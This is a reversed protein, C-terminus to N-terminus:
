ISPVTVEEWEVFHLEAFKEKEKKDLPPCAICLLDEARSLAVYLIRTDDYKESEIEPTFLGKLDQIEDVYLLVSEFETGKSKHITRIETSKDEQLIINNILEQITVQESSTKFRGKIIKKIKFGKLKIFDLLSEYFVYLTLNLSQKIEKVLFELLDVALSRKTLSDMVQNDQFPSKLINNKDTRLSHIIEKVALEYRGDVVLKYSTLLAKLFRERSDDADNLSTWADSIDTNLLKKVLKNNRALVCYDNNLELEKRLMQFNMLTDSADGFCEIYYIPNNSEQRITKQILGDEKRIHNLLDIIKEGSRRNNEIKYEKQNPLSFNIFDERSAGQFGYISQAPDGIVGIITGAEGVWKIIETQIPNTDQFEDLFMYPYKASIHELIIPYDELIKYSFYLVDEHHIIGEDWYLQKYYPFSEEKIWYDSIHRYHSKRPKLTFTDNKLIWDLNELCKKVEKKHKSFHMNNTQKQWNIIKGQTAINEFHGDMEKVNVLIKGEEGKLLHVYPKIINTYLFSHITSVEIKDSNEGLRNLIEEAGVTTYTICSIKSTYTLKTSNQLVNKIHEVLWFTKGAGPGAVVKFHSDIDAIRDDSSIIIQNDM